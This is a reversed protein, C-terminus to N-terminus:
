GLDPSAVNRGMGTSARPHKLERVVMLLAWTALLTESALTTWAAGVGGWRPIAYLNTAVNTLLCVAMVWVMRKELHLTNALVSAVFALYVAPVCYFLVRLIPASSAYDSGFVLEIIPGSFLAVVAGVVIGLAIAAALLRKVLGRFEPWANRVVLGVCIPLFITGLPRIAVRSVEFCRYAVEYTAVADLSTMFGLMVTDVKFHLVSLVILLFFPASRELVTRAEAVSWRVPIPGHDSRLWCFCWIALVLNSVVFATLVAPLGTDLWIAVFTGAVLVIRSAVDTVVRQRIRRLAVFVAAFTFALSELFLYFISFAVATQIEPYFAWAVFMLTAGSVAMLPLRVCLVAGIVASVRAHSAAIERVMYSTTGFETFLAAVSALSAAFFFAGIDDKHLHRAIAVIVVYSVLKRFTGGAAVLAIDDAIKRWNLLGHPM